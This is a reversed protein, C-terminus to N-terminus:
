EVQEDTLSIRYEGEREYNVCYSHGAIIPCLRLHYSNKYPAFFDSEISPTTVLKLKLLDDQVFKLTGIVLAVICLLTFIIRPLNKM